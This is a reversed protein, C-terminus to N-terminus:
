FSLVSVGVWCHEINILNMKVPIDFARNIRPLELCVFYFDIMILAFLTGLALFCFGEKLFLKLEEGRSLIVKQVLFQYPDLIQVSTYRHAM